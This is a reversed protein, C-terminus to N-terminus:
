SFIQLISKKLSNKTAEYDEEFIFPLRVVHVLVERSM